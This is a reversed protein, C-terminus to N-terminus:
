ATTREGASTLKELREIYSALLAFCSEMAAPKRMDVGARIPGALAQAASIGTAYQFAYYNMHLHRFQAWASGERRRDIEIEGGYGEEFLDAMLAGLDEATLGQGREVRRHVELEFRALTPMVFLYRHLNHMAEEILSLQFQPDAQTAFLHARTMAQHFTSAVEAAFLSYDAYVSSQSRWSCWSHMAHGLEHALTSVSLLDNAYSMKVFPHTGKWGSSSAGYAKGLTPYVDVWREETCGRRLTAVYPEGLPALAACIWDVAQEYPVEPQRSAIPATIDWHRLRELNLARSRARWYRHWLPLNRTFQEITTELVSRPIANPFLAADVSDAFRRSRAIFVDRKVATVLSSALAHQLALHSDCYSQWSSRRVERDASTLLKGITSQAITEGDSAAEFRMDVDVLMKHTTEAGEFVESAFGLVEEVETSRVHDQSRFLNECYHRYISLRPEEETWSELTKLGLALLEPELFAVAAKLRAGLGGARGALSHAEEDATDVAGSMSAYMYLRGVRDSLAFVEDLLDALAEGGGAAISGRRAAIRPIAQSVLEYETRWADRDAFVSESNWTYRKEISSRPPLAATSM